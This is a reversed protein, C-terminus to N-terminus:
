ELDDNLGSDCEMMCCFREHDEMEIIKTAVLNAIDRDCNTLNMILNEQETILDMKTEGKKADITDEIV